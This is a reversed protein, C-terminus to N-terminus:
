FQKGDGVNKLIEAKQKQEELAKVRKKWGVKKQNKESEIMLDIYDPASLPNPRRAIEGLRNIVATAEQVMGSVHQKFLKYKEKLASIMSETTKGRYREETGKLFREKLEEATTTETVEKYQWRYKQNYHDSWFCKGPCKTCYGDQNMAVCGRKASDDGIDCPYHCTQHCKSCNLVFNGTGTNEISTQVPKIVKITVEFDKNREIEAEHKKIQERIQLIEDQQALDEKIKRQLDELTEELRKRERLVGKTLICSKPETKDLADFFSRMSAKGMNWFMEDFGVVSSQNEAFLASNNFKYHAPKGDDNKPCPFEAATIAELVPPLQGDAFTVLVRHNEAVPDGFISLVSDFVYRQTASHPLIFSQVVLCMANLEDVGHSDSFLNRIQETIQHDRKIGRTDGFGPTDIINLSYDIMFGEDFNIRYVTVESTQSQCKEEEVVLKFRYKDTWQVGLIYNIMGNILTSKGARTAGSVIITCTKKGPVESGFNFRACGPINIEDKQLPVKLIQLSGKTEKVECTKRVEDALRRPGEPVPYTKHTLENLPGQGMETLARLRFTYETDPNLETVITLGTNAVSQQQWEGNASSEKNERYELRYGTVAEAGWTPASVCLTVSNHTVVDVKVEPKSPPVFDNSAEFGDEYTYITSGKHTEDKFAVAMFKVDENDNNAEAFDAFLKVKTRVAERVVKNSYWQQRELDKPQYSSQDLSAGKLYQDLASLYEEETELSTFVFCVAYKINCNRADLEDQCSLVETHKMMNTFTKILKIEKVKSTVWQNLCDRSFPSAARKKLIEALEAEDEGGGRIAPLKQALVGQLELNFQSCFSMFTRIKTSIQPFQKLAASKLIDQCKMDLDALHELTREVEFVLGVSIQRVLQAAKSDLKTLPLLWVTVPVANEGDPGLLKPLDKYVNVADEFTMPSQPLNFDGHFKCSFKNVKERDKDEMKLAGEGEISICPIKEIMVKLKGQIDQINESDSVERDFVFFAQAGYLIATVVHTALGDEIVYPHKINGRGLQNMTLERFRTTTKYKLTVRAQQKSTRTDKLYKASGDVKVLGSFFSAKLAADVGLSTSKDSISESAVIEFESSPQPRETMDEKLKERDWLIM